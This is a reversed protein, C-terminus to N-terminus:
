LLQLYNVKELRDFYKAAEEKTAGRVMVMDIYPSRDILPVKATDLQVGTMIHWIIEQTWTTGCRPHTVIWVDDQRLPMTYVRWYHNKISSTLRTLQPKSSVLKRHPGLEGFHTKVVGDEEYSLDEWQYPYDGSPHDGIIHDDDPLDGSPHDGVTSDGSAM